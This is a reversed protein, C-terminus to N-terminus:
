PSSGSSESDNASDNSSDTPREDRGGLQALCRDPEVFADLRDVTVPAGTSAVVGQMLGLHVRCVVQPHAKAQELFPCHRLGIRADGGGDDAPPEPAFGLDDLVGTLHRLAQARTRPRSGDAGALGAGWARGAATANGEPDSGNALGGVLAGALAQYNRPGTPDMGSVARFLQPPRGPGTRAAEVREIQGNDVLVDLHFRVTNPHVGLREAIRAISAPEATDRLVNLVERRTM